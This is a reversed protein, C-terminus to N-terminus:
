NFGSSENEEGVKEETQMKECEKHVFIPKVLPLYILMEIFQYSFVFRLIEKLTFPKGCIKCRM